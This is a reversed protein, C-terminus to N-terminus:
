SPLAHSGGHDLDQSIKVICGDCLVRMKSPDGKFMLPVLGGMAVHMESVHYSDGCNCTALYKILVVSLERSCQECPIEMHLPESCPEKSTFFHEKPEPKSKAQKM